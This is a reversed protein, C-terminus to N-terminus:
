FLPFHMCTKGDVSGVYYTYNMTKRTFMCIWGTRQILATVLMASDAGPDQLVFIAINKEGM